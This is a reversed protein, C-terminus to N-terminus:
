PMAGQSRLSDIAQSRYQFLTDDVQHLDEGHYVRLWDRLIDIAEASLQLPIQELLDKRVVQMRDFRAFGERIHNCEPLYFFQPYVYGKVRAIFKPPYSKKTEDGAFSYVPITLFCAESVRRPDGRNEVPLSVIIVPRRKANVVLARDYARTGLDTNPELSDGFAQKWDIREIEYDYGRRSENYKHRIVRERNKEPLYLSPAWFFQGFLYFQGLLSGSGLTQYYESGTMLGIM